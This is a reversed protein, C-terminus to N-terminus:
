HSAPRAAGCVSAGIFRVGATNEILIGPYERGDSYDRLHVVCGNGHSLRHVGSRTVYKLRHRQSVVEHRLLDELLPARVIQGRPTVMNTRTARVGFFVGVPTHTATSYMLSGSQGPEGRDLIFSLTNNAKDEIVGLGGLHGSNAWGYVPDGAHKNSDWQPWPPFESDISM